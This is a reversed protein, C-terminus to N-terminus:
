DIFNELESFQKSRIFSKNFTQKSEITENIDFIGNFYETFPNISDFYNFVKLNCAIYEYVKTGYDYSPDRIVVLAYSSEILIKYLESKNVRELYEYDINPFEQKYDNLWYNQKKDAGIVRIICKKDSYRLSIKKIIDKVKDVGYESFQGACTFILEKSEDNSNIKSIKKILNYNDLSIGNPIMLIKKDHESQLYSKLGETCTIVLYSKKILFKEILYVIKYKLHNPKVTGGYGSKIAISWGDRIDLIIKINSLFFLSWFRFDPQSIFIYDPKVKSIFNIVKLESLFDLPMNKEIINYGKSEFFNYYSKYREFSPSGEKSNPKLMFIKKSM